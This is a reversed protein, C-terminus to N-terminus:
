TIEPVILKLRFHGSKIFYINVGKVEIDLEDVEKSENSQKKLSKSNFLSETGVSNILVRISATVGIITTMAKENIHPITAKILYLCYLYIIRYKVIEIM